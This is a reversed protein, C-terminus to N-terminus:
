LQSMLFYISSHTSCLSFSVRRHNLYLWCIGTRLGPGVTVHSYPPCICSHPSRFLLSNRCPPWLEAHLSARGLHDHGASQVSFYACLMLHLQCTGRPTFRLNETNSSIVKGTVWGFRELEQSPAHFFLELSHMHLIWDSNSLVQGVNVDESEPKSCQTRLVAATSNFIRVQSKSRGQRQFSGPIM